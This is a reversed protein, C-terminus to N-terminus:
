LSYFLQLVCGLQFVNKLFLFDVNVVSFQKMQM